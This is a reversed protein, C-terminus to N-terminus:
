TPLGGFITTDRNRQITRTPRAIEVLKYVKLTFDEKSLSEEIRSNVQTYGSIIDFSKTTENFLVFQDELQNAAPEVNAAPALQEKKVEPTSQPRPRTDTIGRNFLGPKNPLELIAGAAKLKNIAQQFVSAKFNRVNVMMDQLADEIEETHHFYHENIYSAYSDVDNGVTDQNSQAPEVAIKKSRSTPKVFARVLEYNYLTPLSIGTLDSIAKVSLRQDNDKLTAIAIRVQELNKTTQEIKTNM